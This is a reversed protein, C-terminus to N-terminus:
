TVCLLCGIFGPILGCPHFYGDCIQHAVFWGADIEGSDTNLALKKAVAELGIDHRNGLQAKCIEDLVFLILHPVVGRDQVAFHGERVGHLNKALTEVALLIDGLAGLNVPVLANLCEGNWRQCRWSSWRPRFLGTVSECRWEFSGM